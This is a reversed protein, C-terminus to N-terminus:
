SRGRRFAKQRLLKCITRIETEDNVWLLIWGLLPLFYLLYLFLLVPILACLWTSSRLTLPDKTTWGYGNSLIGWKLCKQLIFATGLYSVSFCGPFGGTSRRLEAWVKQSWFLSCRCDSDIISVKRGERGATWMCLMLFFFFSFPWSAIM